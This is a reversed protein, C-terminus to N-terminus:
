WDLSDVLVWYRSVDLFLTAMTSCYSPNTLISGLNDLSSSTADSGSFGVAVSVGLTNVSALNFYRPMYRIHPASSAHYM